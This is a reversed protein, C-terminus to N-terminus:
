SIGTMSRAGDVTPGQIRQTWDAVGQGQALYGYQSMECETGDNQIPIYSRFDAMTVALNRAEKAYGLNLINSCTSRLVGGALSGREFCSSPIVRVSGTSSRAMDPSRSDAAPFPCGGVELLV